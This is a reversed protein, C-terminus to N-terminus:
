LDDPARPWTGLVAHRPRWGGAALKTELESIGSFLQVGSFRLM